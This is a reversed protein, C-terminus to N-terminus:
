AKFGHSFRFNQKEFAKFDFVVNEKGGRGSVNTAKAKNKNVSIM